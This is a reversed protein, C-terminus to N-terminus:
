RISNLVDFAAEITAERAKKSVAVHMSVYYEGLEFDIRYTPHCFGEHTALRADDLLLEGPTQRYRKAAGPFDDIYAFGTVFVEAQELLKPALPGNRDCRGGANFPRPSLSFNWSDPGQRSLDYSWDAPLTISSDAVFDRAPAVSGAGRSGEALPEEDTCGMFTSSVILGLVLARLFGKM